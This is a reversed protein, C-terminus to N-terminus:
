GNDSGWENKYQGDLISLEKKLVNIKERSVDYMVEAIDRKLRKEAVNPKGKCTLTIVGIATGNDREKLVEQSLASQYEHEANAREVGYKQMMNLTEKQEEINQKITILLDM